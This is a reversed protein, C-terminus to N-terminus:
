WSLSYVRFLCTTDIGLLSYQCVSVVPVNKGVWESQVSQYGGEPESDPGLVVMQGVALVKM